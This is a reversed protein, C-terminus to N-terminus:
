VQSAPDRQGVDLLDFIAENYIEFFSCRVRFASCRTFGSTMSFLDEICRPIIGPDKKSGVLTYTKGSSTQGYAMM